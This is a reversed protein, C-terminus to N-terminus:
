VFTWIEKCKNMDENSIHAYGNYGYSDGWSNRIIFGDKDYGVVSVAHYGQFSDGKWFEENNNFVPLVALCPGNNIIANKLSILNNIKFYKSMHIIGNKYKAGKEIVYKFAEKCTMGDGKTTRSEFIDFLRFKSNKNNGSLLALKYECWASISCPICIPDSGQNLVEPLNKMYSFNVPIQHKANEYKLESGDINSLILGSNFM